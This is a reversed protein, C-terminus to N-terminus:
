RAHPIRLSTDRVTPQAQLQNDSDDPWNPMHTQQTQQASYVPQGPRAGPRYPEDDLEYGYSAPSPTRGHRPDHPPDYAPQHRHPDM